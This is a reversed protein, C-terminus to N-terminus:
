ESTYIFGLRGLKVKSLYICDLNLKIVPCDSCSLPTSVLKNVKEKPKM